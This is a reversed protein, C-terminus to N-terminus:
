TRRVMYSFVFSLTGTILGIITPIVTIKGEINSISKEMPVLRLDIKSLREDILEYVERYTVIEEHRKM